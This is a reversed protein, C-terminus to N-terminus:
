KQSKLENKIWLGGETLNKWKETKCAGPLFVASSEDKDGLSWNVWSIKISDPNNGKFISLWKKASEFDYGQSGDANTTGWESAFVPIKAIANTFSKYDKHSKSYFHFAYMINKHSLPKKVVVKLNSSWRPTGVIIIAKKDKKRIIPIIENAFKTIESWTAEKGNPENCIEFIVHKKKAHKKIIHTWFEKAYKIDTNPNGNKLVHWDIMCYLGKREAIDVLKDVFAISKEPNKIYNQTYLALRIVDIKWDTKLHEISNETMCKPFWMLGHSSMGKLQIAEGKENCLQKDILQLRGNKEVPTQAQLLNATFALILILIIKKM